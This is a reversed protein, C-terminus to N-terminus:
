LEMCCTIIVNRFYSNTLRAISAGSVKPDQFSTATLFMVFM